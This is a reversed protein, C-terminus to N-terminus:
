NPGLQAANDHALEISTDSLIIWDDGSPKLIGTKIIIKWLYEKAISRYQKKVQSDLADLIAGRHIKQTAPLIQGHKRLDIVAKALLDPLFIVLFVLLALYGEQGKQSNPPRIKKETKILRTNCFVGLKKNIDQTLTVQAKIVDNAVEAELPLEEYAIARTKEVWTRSNNTNAIKRQYNKHAKSNM